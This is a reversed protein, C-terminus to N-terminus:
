LTDALFFGDWTAVYLKNNIIAGGFGYECDIKKILRRKETDYFFVVKSFALILHNNESLGFNCFYGLDISKDLYYNHIDLIFSSDTFIDVIKMNTLLMSHPSVLGMIGTEPNLDIESKVSLDDINVAYYRKIQNGMNSYTDKEQFCFCLLKKDYDLIRNVCYFNNNTIYQKEYSNISFDYKVVYWNNDKLQIIDLVIGEGICFFTGDHASDKRGRCSGKHILSNTELDFMGYVGTTSKAYVYKEDMSLSTINKIGTLTACVEDTEPHIIGIKNGGSCIFNDNYAIPGCGFKLLQKM